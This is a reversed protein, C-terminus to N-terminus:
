TKGAIQVIKEDIKQRNQGLKKIGFSNVFDVLHPLICKDLPFAV